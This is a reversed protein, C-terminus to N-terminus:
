VDLLGDQEGEGGVVQEVFLEGFGREVGGGRGRVVGLGGLLEQLRRSFELLVLFRM